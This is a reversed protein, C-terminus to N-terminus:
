KTQRDSHESNKTDNLKRQILLANLLLKLAKLEKKDYGHKEAIENINKLWHEISHNECGIAIYNDTLTIHYNHANSTIVKKTVQANGFVRARCYVRANGSVRANDSVQANGYVLADGYVLANDSVQASDYVYVNGYVRVNDYVLASGYVRANGSVQADGHVYANDFVRADDYVFCEGEHSLNDESEIYGGILGDSLRRIRRLTRGDVEITKGTFKYKKSM